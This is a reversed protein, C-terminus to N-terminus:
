GNRSFWVRFDGLFEPRNLFSTGLRIPSDKLVDLLVDFISVCLRISGWLWAYSWNLHRGERYRPQRVPVPPTLFKLEASIGNTRYGLCDRLLYGGPEAIPAAHCQLDKEQNRQWEHSHRELRGSIQGHACKDRPVNYRGDFHILQADISFEANFIL